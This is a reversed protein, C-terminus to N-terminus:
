RPQAALRAELAVIRRELRSIKDELENIRLAAAESDVAVSALGFVVADIRRDGTLSHEQHPTAPPLTQSVARHRPPIALALALVALFTLTLKRM